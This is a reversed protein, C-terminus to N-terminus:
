RIGYLPFKVIADDNKFKFTTMEAATKATVAAIADDVDAAVSCHVAPDPPLAVRYRKASADAAKQEFPLSVFVM